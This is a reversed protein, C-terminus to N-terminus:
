TREDEGSDSERRLRSEAGVLQNLLLSSLGASLNLGTIKAHFGSVKLLRLKRILVPQVIHQLSPPTPPHRHKMQM